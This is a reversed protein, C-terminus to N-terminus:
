RVRASKSTRIAMYAFGRKERKQVLNVFGSTQMYRALEMVSRSARSESYGYVYTERPKATQVFSLLAEEDPKRKRDNQMMGAGETFTKRDNRSIRACTRAETQFIDATPESLPWQVLCCKFVLMQTTWFIDPWISGLPSLRGPRVLYRCPSGCHPGHASHDLADAPVRRLVVVSNDLSQCATVVDRFNEDARQNEPDVPWSGHPDTAGTEAGAAVRFGRSKFPMFRWARM